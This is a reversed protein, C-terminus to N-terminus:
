CAIKEMPFEGAPGHYGVRRGQLFLCTDAMTLDEQLHHSIWVVAAGRDKLGRIETRLLNLSKVDLGTGPEDLYVLQPEVLFVRALNLRQAMGRSFAGAREDAVRELGVRDLLAMLREEDADIGYMQAWFALNAKASMAPYIFTAHGLYVSKEAPCNDVVEGASPRSLGAMLKLLTSKGAGNAGAVLLIEGPSAACSVNKFVLKSGFFKSVKRAEILPQVSM